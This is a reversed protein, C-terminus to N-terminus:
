VELRKRFMAGVSGWVLLVFAVTVALLSVGRAWRLAPFPVWTWVATHMGAPIQNRVLGTVPDASITVLVGDITVRMDPFEVVRWLLDGGVASSIRLERRLPQWGVVEVSADSDGVVVAPRGRIADLQPARHGALEPLLFPPANAAVFWIEALNHHRWYWGGSGAEWATRPDPFVTGPPLPEPEPSSFTSMPATRDWGLFPVAVAAALVVILWARRVSLRSVLIAVALTMVSALRWPFQFKSVVPLADWIPGVPSTTAVLLLITGVAAVSVGRDRRASPELAAYVLAACVVLAVVCLSVLTNFEGLDLGNRFLGNASPSFRGAGAGYYRDVSLLSGSLAQPVLAFAAVAFGLIAGAAVVSRRSRLSSSLVFWAGLAVGFLVALPINSVLLLGVSVALLAIRTPWGIGSATAVWLVLPPWVFAWHEALASRYYIDILRYPTIMYILAAPLAASVHGASRIWGFVVAGSLFLGLLTCFSVGITAPVGGLLPGAHLYSTLPPFFLLTPAGFGANFGGGWAPFLEGSRLNDAMQQGNILYVVIDHGALVRGALLPAGVVATTVSLVGLAM